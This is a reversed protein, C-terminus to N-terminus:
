NIAVPTQPQVDLVTASVATGVYQSTTGSATPATTTVAGSAGMFYDAGPTLGTLQTNMGSRYVSAQNGSTVAALVFGSAKKGASATASDANRANAVGSNNWLNVIAGASLAESAPVTVIDNGTGAPFMNPTLLGNADLQPIQGASTAGGTTAAAFIKIVGNVLTAFTAM